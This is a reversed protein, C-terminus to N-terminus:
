ENEYPEEEDRHKKPARQLGPFFESFIRLIGPINQFTKSHKPIDSTHNAWFLALLRM